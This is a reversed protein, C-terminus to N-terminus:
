QSRASERTAVSGARRRSRVRYRHHEQGGPSPALLDAAREPRRVVLGPKLSDLPSADGDTDALHIKTGRRAAVAGTEFALLICMSVLLAVLGGLRYRLHRDSYVVLLFGEFVEGAVPGVALGARKSAGKGYSSPWHVRVCTDSPLAVAGYTSVAVMALLIVGSLLLVTLAPAGTASMVALFGDILGPQYQISKLRDKIIATLQDRTAALDGLGNKMNSWAGM